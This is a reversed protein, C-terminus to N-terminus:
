HATALNPKHVGPWHEVSLKTEPRWERAAGANRIIEMYPLLFLCVSSLITRPSASHRVNYKCEIQKDGM